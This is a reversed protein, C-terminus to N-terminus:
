NTTLVLDAELLVLAAAADGDSEDQADPVPTLEEAMKMFLAGLAKFEDAREQKWDDSRGLDNIEKIRGLYATADEVIADHQDKRTAKQDVTKVGTAESEENAQAVVWSVERCLVDTLFNVSQGDLTGPEEGMTWYGISLGVEKGADMREQAKMRIKQSDEDGHFEAVFYLGKADEYAEVIYGVAAEVDWKHDPLMFGKKIFEPLRKTFTGPRTVDNYSDIVGFVNAYGEIRGNKSETPSMKLDVALFAKHKPTTKDNLLSPTM